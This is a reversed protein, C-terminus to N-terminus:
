SNEAIVMAALGLVAFGNPKKIVRGGIQRM